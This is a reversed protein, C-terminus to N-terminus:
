PLYLKAYTTQAYADTMGAIYDCAIRIRERENQAALWLDRFDDPFLFATNPNQSSFVAFLGEIIREAKNEHIAVRADEVILRFMVKKLVACRLRLPKDIVLRYRYRLSTEDTMPVEERRSANIFDRILRSTLIKRAAKRERAVTKQEVLRVCDLVWEFNEAGLSEKVGPTHILRNSTIMGVKMGDELDHVSYAVEDAWDMIQCEFSREKPHGYRCAWDILPQDDTYYFKKRGPEYPIKYKLIGDLTARTLNLGDFEYFKTSLYNINRLNQANGEFGGYDQMCRNLADEGTHGFPPHGLDHALCIAEILDPDAGLRLALGKGIQAAELSHTLRTRLFDDLGPAFVQTKGQLRRFSASHILRARDIEFPSREEDPKTQEPHVREWDRESYGIRPLRGNM